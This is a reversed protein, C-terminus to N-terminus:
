KRWDEAERVAKGLVLHFDRVDEPTPSSQLAKRKSSRPDITDRLLDNEVRIHPTRM